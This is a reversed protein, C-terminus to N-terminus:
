IIACMLIKIYKSFFSTNWFSDNVYNRASFNNNLNSEYKITLFYGCSFKCARMLMKLKATKACFQNSSM